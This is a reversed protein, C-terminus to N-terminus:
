PKPIGHRALRDEIQPDSQRPPATYYATAYTGDSRPASPTFCLDVRTGDASMFGHFAPEWPEQVPGALAARLAAVVKGGEDVESDCRNCRHGHESTCNELAELAQKVTARPLTINDSM